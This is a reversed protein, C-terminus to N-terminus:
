VAAGKILAVLRPIKVGHALFEIWRLHHKNLGDNALCDDLEDLRERWIKEDISAAASLLKEDPATRERDFYIFAEASSPGQAAFWEPLLERNAAHIRVIAASLMRYLEAQSEADPASVAALGVLGSDYDTLAEAESFRPQGGVARDWVFPVIDPDPGFSWGHDVFFPARIELAGYDAPDLDLSSPSAVFYDHDAPVPYRLSGFIEGLTYAQGEGLSRMM